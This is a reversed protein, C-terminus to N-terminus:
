WKYEPVLPHEKIKRSQLQQWVKQHDVKDVIAAVKAAKYSKRRLIAKVHVYKHTIIGMRGRGKFDIRKPEFGDKGVWIQEIYLEEPNLGLSEAQEIGRELMAGTERSVKKASFHCQTIAKHLDMQRLMRLFPYTKKTSSKIRYSQLYVSPELVELEEKSLQLKFTRGDELKVLQDKIYRGHDAIMKEFVQRKLPSLLKEVASQAEPHSFERVEPDNRYSYNTSKGKAGGEEAAQGEVNEVRQSMQELVSGREEKFQSVEGFLSGEQQSNEKQETAYGRQLILGTLPRNPTCKPMVTLKISSGARLQQRCVPAIWRRIGLM